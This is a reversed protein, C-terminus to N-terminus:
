PPPAEQKFILRYPNSSSVFVRAEVVRHGGSESLGMFAAGSAITRRQRYDGPKLGFRFFM